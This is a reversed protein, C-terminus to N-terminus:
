GNKKGKRLTSFNFSAHKQRGRTEDEMLRDTSLFEIFLRFSQDQMLEQFVVQPIELAEVDTEAVINATRRKGNHILAIEGIFTLPGVDRIYHSALPDIVAAVGELIVYCSHAEDGLRIITDGKNFRKQMVRSDCRLYRNVLYLTKDGKTVEKFLDKRKFTTGDHIHIGLGEAYPHLIENLLYKKAREEVWSELRNALSLLRETASAYESREIQSRVVRLERSCTLVHETPLQNGHAELIDDFRNLQAIIERMPLLNKDIALVLLGMMENLENIANVKSRFIETLKDISTYDRDMRLKNFWRKLLKLHSVKDAMGMASYHAIEVDMLDRYKKMVRPHSFGGRESVTSILASLRAEKRSFYLEQYITEGLNEPTMLVIDYIGKSIEPKYAFRFVKTVEKWNGDVQAIFDLKMMQRQLAAESLTLRRGIGDKQSGLEKVGGRVEALAWKLGRGTEQDAGIKLESFIIHANSLVREINQQLRGVFIDAAEHLSSAKVLVIETFDVDGPYPNVRGMYAASGSLATSVKVKENEVMRVKEYLPRLKLLAGKDASEVVWKVGFVNSGAVRHFGGRRYKLYIQVFGMVIIVAIAIFLYARISFQIM